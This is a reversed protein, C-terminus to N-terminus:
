KSESASFGFQKLRGSLHQRGLASGQKSIDFYVFGALARKRGEQKHMAASAKVETKKDSARESQRRTAPQAAAPPWERCYFSILEVVKL